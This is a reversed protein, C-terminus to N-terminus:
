ILQGFIVPPDFDARKGMGRDFVEEECGRWFAHVDGPRCCQPVFVVLPSPVAEVLPCARGCASKLGQGAMVFDDVKECIAKESTFVPSGRPRLNTLVQSGDCVDCDCRDLSTHGVDERFTAHPTTSVGSVRPGIEVAWRAGNIKRNGRNVLVNEVHQVFRACHPSMPRFMLLPNAHVCSAFHM